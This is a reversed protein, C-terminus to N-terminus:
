QKRILDSGIRTFCRESAGSKTLSRAINALAKLTANCCLINGKKFNIGNDTYKYRHGINYFKEPIIKGNEGQVTNDLPM